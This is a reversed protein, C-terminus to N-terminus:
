KSLLNEVTTLTDIASVRARFYEDLLAIREINPVTTTLVNLSYLGNKVLNLANIILLTDRNRSSINPTTALYELIRRNLTSIRADIRSINNKLLEAFLPPNNLANQSITFVERQIDRIENIFQNITASHNPTGNGDSANLPVFAVIIALSLIISVLVKSKILNKM